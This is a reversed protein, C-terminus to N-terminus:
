GQQHDDKVGESSEPMLCVKLTLIMLKLDTIISYNEIYYIDLLLKDRRTTNYKGYIQAYGTLGAKVMLRYRFEPIEKVIEEYMEPREPRPGVFTMEGKSINILQPLEDIRTMRIFKGVKTIRDDNNKALIAGTNKEADMIMSRFKYVMFERGNLGLRKQKFLIDGGDNLKIALATILMVPSAIILLVLSGLIDILRKIIAELENPGFRGIKLIPTDIVHMVSSSAILTDSISPIDYVTIHEEYCKKFILKKDNHDVDVTIVREYGALLEDLQDFSIDEVDVSKDVTVLIDRYPYIKALIEYNPEGFIAIAKPIPFCDRLHRNELYLLTAMAVIQLILLILIPLVMLMRYAILSMIFYIIFNTAFAALCYSLFMDRVRTEGLRFVEFIEVFLSLLGLYIATIIVYGNFYYNIVGYFEILMILFMSVCILMDIVIYFTKLNEKHNRQTKM